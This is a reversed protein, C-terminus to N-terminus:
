KRSDDSLARTSDILKGVLGPKIGRVIKPMLPMAHSAVLLRNGRTPRVLTLGDEYDKPLDLGADMATGAAFLNGIWANFALETSVKPDRFTFLDASLRGEVVSLRGLQGPSTSGRKDKDIEQVTKVVNTFEIKQGEDWASTVEKFECFVCGDICKGAQNPTHMLDELLTVMETDRENQPLSSDIISDLAHVTRFMVNWEREQDDSVKVDFSRAADALLSSGRSYKHGTETQSFVEHSM